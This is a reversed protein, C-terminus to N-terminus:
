NCIEIITIGFSWIDVKPGYPKGETMEPSMWYPTGIISIATPKPSANGFDSIVLDYSTTILINSAKIDRHIINESHIFSLGSLIPFLLVLLNADSVKFSSLKVLDHLNMLCFEFIIGFHKNDQKKFLDLYSIINPHSLRQVIRSEQIVQDATFESNIRIYKLVALKKSKQDVCSYVSSYNGVGIRTM